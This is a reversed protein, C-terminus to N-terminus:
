AGPAATAIMSIAMAKVDAVRTSWGNGFTAWTRLGKLYALREACLTAIIRTPDLKSAAALTRPGIQGDPITGVIEQLAKASRGIGSNVGYDFVAYDIGAPLDDCRLPVWYEGYYISRVDMDDATWVDRTPLGTKIRWADYESQLIGRSTRGGPDRPDDDNGGEHVLLAKLCAAFNLATM